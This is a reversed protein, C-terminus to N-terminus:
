FPKLDINQCKPHDLNLTLFAGFCCCSNCPHDIFCVTKVTFEYHETYGLIKSCLISRAHNWISIRVNLTTLTLTWPWFDGSCCCVNCSNDIFCWNKVRFKYNEACILIKSHLISRAHNWIWIRVKLTTLTLTLPWFAGFRCCINFSCDM